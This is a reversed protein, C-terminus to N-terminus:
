CGWMVLKKNWALIHEKADRIGYNGLIYKDQQLVVGGVMALGAFPAVLSLHPPTPPHSQGFHLQEVLIFNFIWTLCNFDVVQGLIRRYTKKFIGQVVTTSTCFGMAREKENANPKEM